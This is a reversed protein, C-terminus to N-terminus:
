QHPARSRQAPQLADIEEQRSESTNRLCVAPSQGVRMLAADIAPRLAELDDTQLFYIALKAPAGNPLAVRGYDAFFDRHCSECLRRGAEFDFAQINGSVDKLIGNRHGRLPWVLDGRGKLSAGSTRTGTMNVVAIVNTQAGGLYDVTKRVKLEAELV